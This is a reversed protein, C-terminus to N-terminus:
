DTMPRRLRGWFGAVLFLVGIAALATARTPSGGAAGNLIDSWAIIGGGLALAGFILSAIKM